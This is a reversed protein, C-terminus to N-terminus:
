MYSSKGYNHKEEFKFLSKLDYRFRMMNTISGYLKFFFLNNVFDRYYLCSLGNEKALLNMACEINAIPWSNKFKQSYEIIDYYDYCLTGIARNECIEIKM